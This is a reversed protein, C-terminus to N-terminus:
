ASAKVVRLKETKPSKKATGTPLVPKVAASRPRAQLSSAVKKAASQYASYCNIVSLIALAAYGLYEISSFVMVGELLITFGWAKYINGCWKIAWDALTPASFILGFVVLIALYPADKVEYHSICFSAVPLFAAAVAAVFQGFSRKQAANLPTIVKAPPKTPKM